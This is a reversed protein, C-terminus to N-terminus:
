TYTPTFSLSVLLLLLLLVSLLAQSRTHVRVKYRALFFCLSTHLHTLVWCTLAAAAGAYVTSSPPPRPRPSQHRTLSIVSYALACPTDIHLAYSHPVWRFYSSAFPCCPKNAPAFVPETSWDFRLTHQVRSLPVWWSYSCCCCWWLCCPLEIHSEERNIM